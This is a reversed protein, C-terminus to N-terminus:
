AIRGRMRRVFFIASICGLALLGGKIIEDFAGTKPLEEAKVLTMTREPTPTDTVETGTPTLSPQTGTPTVTPTSSQTATATITPTDTPTLTGTPTNTPTWTATNTETPTNTKTPTPTKTPPVDTDTPTDTPVDTDTPTPTPLPCVIVKVNSIQRIGEIRHAGVWSGRITGDWVEGEAPYHLGNPPITFGKRVGEDEPRLSLRVQASKVIKDGFDHEFNISHVDSFLVEECGPEKGSALGFFVLLALIVLLLVALFKEVKDLKM